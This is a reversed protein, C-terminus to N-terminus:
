INHPNALKAEIPITLYRDLVIRTPSKYDGELRVTLRPNDNM